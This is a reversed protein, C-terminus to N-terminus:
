PVVWGARVFDEILMQNSKMGDPPFRLRLVCRIYPRRERDLIGRQRARRLYSHLKLAAESNKECYAWASAFKEPDEVRFCFYDKAKDQFAHNYYDAPSAVVRFEVTEETPNKVFERWPIESWNVSAEWDVKPEGSAPTELIVDLTRLDDLEVTGILFDKEGVTIEEWPGHERVIKRPLVPTSAYYRRMRPLTEDPHRVEKAMEELSAAGFFRGLVELAADVKKDPLEDVVVKEADAPAGEFAHKMMWVAVGIGALLVSLLAVTFLRRARALSEPSPGAAPAAERGEGEPPTEHLPIFVLKRNDSGM